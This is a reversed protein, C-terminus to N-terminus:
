ITSSTGKTSFKNNIKFADVTLNKFDVKGVAPDAIQAFIINDGLSNTMANILTTKGTGVDGTPSIYKITYRNWSGVESKSSRRSLADWWIKAALLM